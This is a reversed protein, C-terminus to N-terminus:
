ERRRREQEEQAQQFLDGTGCACKPPCRGKMPIRNVLHYPCPVYGIRGAVVDVATLIARYYKPLTPWLETKGGAGELAPAWWLSYFYVCCLPYGSCVGRLIDRNM